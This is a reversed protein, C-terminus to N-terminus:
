RQQKNDPRQKTTQRDTQRNTQKHTLTTTHQTASKSFLACQKGPLSEAVEAALEQMCRVPACLPPLLLLPSLAGSCLVAYCLM